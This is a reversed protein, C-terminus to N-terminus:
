MSAKQSQRRRAALLACLGAGLMTITAPEPTPTASGFDLDDIL